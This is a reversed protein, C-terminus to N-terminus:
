RAIEYKRGGIPTFIGELGETITISGDSEILLMEFDRYSRWHEIASNKGMVFMATSLADSMVGSDAVITVAALGNDAPRCDAPDIIHCYTVGDDGIFYREYNGSTVAAKDTLALKGCINQPDLPDAVGIEWPSGDPKSGLAYINGGLNILASSVESERFLALVKDSAFGKATAGLDLMFGEPVCASGGGVTVRRYDVYDALAALRGSDPIRFSDTTFGWERVVPYITIDLAGNTRACMELSTQILESTSESISVSSGASSNIRSIDSDPDTVSLQKDLSQVLERAKDTPAGYATIQMITNMAFFDARTQKASCGCLFILCCLVCFIRKIFGGDKM